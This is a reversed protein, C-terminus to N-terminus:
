VAFRRPRGSGPPVDNPTVVGHPQPSRAGVQLPLSESDLQLDQIIATGLGEIMALPFRSLDSSTVGPQREQEGHECELGGQDELDQIGQNVSMTRINM